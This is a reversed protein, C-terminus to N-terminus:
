RQLGAALGGPGPTRSFHVAHCERSNCECRAQERKGNDSEAGVPIEDRLTDLCFLRDADSRFVSLLNNGRQTIYHPLCEVEEGKERGGGGEAPASRRRPGAPPQDERPNPSNNKIWHRQVLLGFNKDEDNGVVGLLGDGFNDAPYRYVQEVGVCNVDQDNVIRRGVRSKVLAETDGFFRNQREVNRSEEVRHVLPVAAILLEPVVMGEFMAVVEDRQNM